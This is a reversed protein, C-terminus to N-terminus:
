VCVRQTAKQWYALGAALNGMIRADNADLCDHM